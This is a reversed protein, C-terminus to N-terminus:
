CETTSRGGRFLWPFHEHCEIIAETPKSKQLRGNSSSLLRVFSWFIWFNVPKSPGVVEAFSARDKAKTIKSM